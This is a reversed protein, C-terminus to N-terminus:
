NNLLPGFFLGASLFFFLVAAVFGVCFQKANSKGRESRLDLCPDNM